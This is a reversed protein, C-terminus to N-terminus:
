LRLGGLAETDLSMIPAIYLSNEDKDKIKLVDTQRLDTPQDNWAPSGAASFATDGFNTRTQSVLLTRTDASCLRRPHADTVSM